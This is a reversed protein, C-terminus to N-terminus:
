RWRFVGKRWDYVFGLVLLVLFVMGGAFVLPPRGAAAAGSPLEPQAGGAFVVAWPYLFLLEVDFILFAIAVLSFRVDFRRRTPHIPDMGSEYPMRKVDTVRRPGCFQGLLLLAVALGVLSAFFLVLPFVVGHMGPAKEFYLRYPEFDL